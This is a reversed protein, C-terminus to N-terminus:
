FQHKKKLLSATFFPSLMLILLMRTMQMALVLGSDGGLEIVAAIMSSLGGPTSGLVATMTDVRTIVHFEYGVLFCIMILILILFVDILVAKFLKRAIGWDFKVGISLGLLFLGGTFIVPPITLQYPLFWFILLSAFFPGLFLSSPLKFLKGLWIGVGSCIILIILKVILPLSPLSDTTMLPLGSSDANGGFFIGALTPIIVSVMLIRLYQLVAVAIADAGMEESMAVLSPGAGPICGLFSTPRDIDAFRWLLYGNLLSMSGTVAICLLLPLAYDKAMILTDLSFRSATVIAIIAQGTISFISPLPQANGAVAAHIIGVMMPGLLWAIPIHLWEFLFSVLIALILLQTVKKIEPLSCKVQEMTTLLM